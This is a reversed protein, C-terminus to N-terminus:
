ARNRRESNRLVGAMRSCRICSRRGNRVLTNEETFRHGRKCRESAARAVYPARPSRRTNEASGCVDLHKPNVCARNRCLHDLSMGQPIPGVTLEYAMRHARETKSEVWFMGYGGNDKAGQWEWCADEGQVRSVKVWFRDAWSSSM